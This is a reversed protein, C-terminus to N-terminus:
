LHQDQGPLASTRSPTEPPSPPQHLWVAAIVMMAMMMPTRAPYDFASAVIILLLMASGLKSLVGRKAAGARWARESARAWWGLAGLLLIAGPLGADLVIELLDNHAHNFYTPKLLTFPEHTRFVADFGGLGSGFPFYERIMALVTPLGRTRMDQGQDLAFARDISVARGAAVSIGVFIMIIVVTALPLAFSVWRPYHQLVRRLSHWVIGLSLGLALGAALVGARSGSALVILIALIIFGLAVPIRWGPQRREMLAWVPAILCGMALFVAFHNRNAFNGAVEGPTDNILPNNFQAGSFQLLGLLMGATVFALLLGPLWSREAEKLGTVLILVTFPVVLAFAANISAGPTISLPRWSPPQNSLTTAESLAARGPIAHWLGPPLPILQLLALISAAGLLLWIPRAQGPVPREGFVCLVLLMLTAGGRVLVQGAADARSAGGAIWLLALFLGLLTLSLSPRFRLNSHYMPMRGQSSQTKKPALAIM